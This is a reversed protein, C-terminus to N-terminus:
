YLIRSHKGDPHQRVRNWFEDVSVERRNIIDYRVSAVISLPINLERKLFECLVDVMINDTDKWGFAKDDVYMNAYIKRSEYEFPAFEISSNIGHFKIGEHDLFDCARQLYPIIYKNLSPHPRNERCTWLVVIVGIDYLFNIVERAYPRLESIDPFVNRTTICGDFDIAIIPRPHGDNFLEM